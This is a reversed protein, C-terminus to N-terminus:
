LAKEYVRYRKYLESGLGRDFDNIADNDELNWGLECWPVGNALGWKWTEYCLLAPLGLRRYQPKFGFVLARVGRIRRRYWLVKLLGLLGLKGNLRKLVQNFDPLTISLGAPKGDYFAFLVLQPIMIQGLNDALLDLEKETLPSFGWNKQWSENYLEKVLKMESHLDRPNIHRVTIRGSAMLKEAIQSLRQPMGQDAHLLFAYLDKAKSLGWGEALTPYYAPNYPMMITPPYQFGEILLGWEDNSSPSVPGRMVTMGQGRLWAAAADLLAGAAQADDECEFFGFYGVKQNWLNNYNDDVQASIRGVVRGDRRALFLTGRAHEWFPHHERDLIARVERKLPPVWQPIGAYIRWPLDVFASLDGRSEVPKIEVV